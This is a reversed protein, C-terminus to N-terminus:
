GEDAGLAPRPFGLEAPSQGPQAREWERRSRAKPTQGGVLNGWQRAWGRCAPNEVAEAPLRRQFDSGTGSSSIGLTGQARCGHGVDDLEDVDPERWGSEQDGMGGDSRRGRKGETSEPKSLSSDM